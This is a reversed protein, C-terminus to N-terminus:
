GVTTIVAKRGCYYHRSEAWLLNNIAAKPGCYYYRSEAWLKRGVTTIVAKRRCYYYYVLYCLCFVDITTADYVEHGSATRLTYLSPCRVTLTLM